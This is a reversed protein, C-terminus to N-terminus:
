ATLAAVPTEPALARIVGPSNEAVNAVWSHVTVARRSATERNLAHYEARIWGEIEDPPPLVGNVALHIAAERFVPLAVVLEGVTEFRRNEDATSNLDAGRREPRWYGGSLRVLGLYGAADAYYRGQRHHVSFHRALELDDMPRACVAALVALVRDPRDAQPFPYQHRVTRAYTANQM